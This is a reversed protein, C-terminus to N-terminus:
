LCVDRCRCNELSAAFVSTVYSTQFHNFPNMLVKNLNISPKSGVEWWLLLMQQKFHNTKHHNVAMKQSYMTISSKTNSSWMLILTNTFAQHLCLLKEKWEIKSLCQGMWQKYNAATLSTWRWSWVVHATVAATIIAATTTLSRTYDTSCHGRTWYRSAWGRASCCTGECGRQGRVEILVEDFMHLPPGRLM